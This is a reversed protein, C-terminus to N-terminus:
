LQDVDRWRQVDSDTTTVGQVRDIVPWGDDDIVARGRGRRPALPIGDDDATMTAM